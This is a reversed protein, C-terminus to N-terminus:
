ARQEWPGQYPPSPPTAQSPHLSFEPLPGCLHLAPLWPPGWAVCGWPQSDWGKGLGWSLGAQPSQLCDLGQGRQPGQEWPRLESSNTGDYKM